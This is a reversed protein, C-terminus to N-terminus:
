NGEARGKRAPDTTVCGQMAATRARSIPSAPHEFAARGAVGSIFCPGGHVSFAPARARFCATNRRGIRRRVDQKLHRRGMVVLAPKLVRSPYVLLDQRTMRMMGARECKQTDKIMLEALGFFGGRPQLLGGRRVLRIRGDVEIEPQSVGRESAVVVGDGRIHARQFQLGIIGVGMGIEAREQHPPVCEGFGLRMEGPRQFQGRAIGSQIFIIRQGQQGGAFPRERKFDGGPAKSEGGGISQTLNELDGRAM